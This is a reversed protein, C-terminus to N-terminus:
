LHNNDILWRFADDTVTLSTLAEYTKVQVNSDGLYIAVKVMNYKDPTVSVKAILKRELNYVKYAHYGWLDGNFKYTGIITESQFIDGGDKIVPDSKNRDSKDASANHGSYKKIFFARYNQDFGKPTFLSESAIFNAIGHKGDIHADCQRPIYSKNDDLFVLKGQHKEFRLYPTGNIDYVTFEPM